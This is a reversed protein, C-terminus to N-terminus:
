LTTHNLSSCFPLLHNLTLVAGEQLTSHTILSPTFTFFVFVCFFVWHTDCATSMSLTIHIISRNFESLYAWVSWKEDWVNCTLPVTCSSSHVIVASCFTIEYKKVFTHCSNALKVWSVLKIFHHSFIIFTKIIAFTFHGTILTVLPHTNWWGAEEVSGGGKSVIKPPCKFLVFTNCWCRCYTSFWGAGEQIHDEPRAKICSTM